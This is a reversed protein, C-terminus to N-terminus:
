PLAYVVANSSPICLPMPLVTAEPMEPLIRARQVCPTYSSLVVDNSTRHYGWTPPSGTPRLHHLFFQTVLGGIHWGPFHRIQSGSFPWIIDRDSNRPNSPDHSIQPRPASWTDSYSNTNSKFSCKQSSHTVGHALQIWNQSTSYM